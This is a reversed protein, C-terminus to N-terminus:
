FGDTFLVKFETGVGLDSEVSVEANHSEFISHTIALGLGTGKPKTTHFPEFIRQRTEEKMGQGSDRVRILVAGSGQRTLEIYLSAEQSGEMAQFANVIINLFAQKLKDRNGKIQVETELSLKIDVGLHEFQRQSVEIIEDILQALDVNDDKPAEPRAFDLFETILNNLRDIEKNIITMLRHNLAQDEGSSQLLQISGSIGALPNRIEHAIGTALGGIAAMKESQRLRQELDRVHTEDVFTMIFGQDANEDDILPSYVVSLIRREGQRKLVYDFERGVVKNDFELGPFIDKYDKGIIIKEDLGLHRYGAPNCQLVKGFRDVTLLGVSVNRLILENLNKLVKVDEVSEKLQQGMINLQESLYGSLYAVTFFALNNVGVALYAVHGSVQSDLSIIFSFLISTWLALPLAGRRQYLVGSLILNILYLFVLLSQQVGIFYILGTIYTAELYFLSSTLRPYQSLKKYFSLFLIQLFLSVGLLLYVPQMSSAAVVKAQIFDFSLILLFILCTFVLRLSHILLTQSHTKSFDFQSLSRM